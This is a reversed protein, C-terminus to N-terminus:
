RNRYRMHERTLDRCALEDTSRILDRMRARQSREPASLAMPGFLYIDGLGTVEFM